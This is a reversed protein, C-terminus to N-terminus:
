FFCMAGLTTTCATQYLQYSGISIQLLSSKAQLCAGTGSNLMASITNSTTTTSIWTTGVLEGNSWFKSTAGSMLDMLINGIVNTNFENMDAQTIIPILYMGNDICKAKAAAYTFSGTVM